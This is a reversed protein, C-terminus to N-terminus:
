DFKTHLLPHASSLRVGKEGAVDYFILYWGQRTSCVSLTALAESFSDFNFDSNVWADAGFEAICKEESYAPNPYAVGHGENCSWMAGMFLNMGIIAFVVINGLLLVIIAAVSPFCKAIAQAMVGMGEIFVLLRVMRLTRMLRISQVWAADVGAIRLVMDISTVFVVLFDFINSVHGLYPDPTSYFGMSIIKLIFEVLFITYFAYEAADLLDRMDTTHEKGDPGEAAMAIGSLAIVITIFYQFVPSNVVGTVATRFGSDEPFIGLAKDDHEPEEASAEPSPTPAMSTMM